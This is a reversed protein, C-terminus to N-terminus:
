STVSSSAFYSSATRADYFSLVAVSIISPRSHGSLLPLSTALEILVGHVVRKTVPVHHFLFHARKSHLQQECHSSGETVDDAAAEALWAVM